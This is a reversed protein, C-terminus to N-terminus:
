GASGATSVAEDVVPSLGPQEFPATPVIFVSGNPQRQTANKLLSCVFCAQHNALLPWLVTIQKTTGSVLFRSLQHM